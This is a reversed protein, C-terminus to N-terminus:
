APLLQPMKGHQGVCYQRKRKFDNESQLGARRLMRQRKVIYDANKSGGNHRM